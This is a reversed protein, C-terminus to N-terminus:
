ESFSNAKKLNTLFLRIENILVGNDASLESGEEICSLEAKIFDAGKLILDTLGPFDISEPRNERIYYFLDEMSHALTSIDNFLMMASSGKITHMIRFIENINHSSYSNCKESSIIIEELQELLQATEFIFMELMPEHSNKPLLFVECNIRTSKM